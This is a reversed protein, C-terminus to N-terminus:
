AEDRNRRCRGCRVPYRPGFRFAPSSPSRALLTFSPGLFRLAVATPSKPFFLLPPEDTERRQSYHRTRDREEPDPFSLLRSKLKPYWVFSDHILRLDRLTGDSSPRTTVEPSAVWVKSQPVLVTRGVGSGM